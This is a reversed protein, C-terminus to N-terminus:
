LRRLLEAVGIGLQEKEADKDARVLSTVTSCAHVWFDSSDLELNWNQGKKGMHDLGTMWGRQSEINRM